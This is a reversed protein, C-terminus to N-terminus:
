RPLRHREARNWQYDIPEMEYAIEPIADYPELFSAEEVRFARLRAKWASEDRTIRLVDVSGPHSFLAAPKYKLFDAAQDLTEFPSGSSLQPPDGTLAIRLRAGDAFSHLESPSQGDPRTAGVTALHFRFDTLMNGAGVMLPSNADSRLFYLGEIEGFRAYLRYAVHWYGIGVAAPLPAPRMHTLRSVVVNFFAFGGHEVLELPTPLLHAVNAPDVRFTFLWCEAVRGRM